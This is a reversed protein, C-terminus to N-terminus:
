KNTSLYKLIVKGVCNFKVPTTNEFTCVLISVNGIIGGRAGHRYQSTDIVPCSWTCLAEEVEVEPHPFM